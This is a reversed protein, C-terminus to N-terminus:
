TIFIAGSGEPLVYKVSILDFNLKFVKVAPKTSLEESEEVEALRPM